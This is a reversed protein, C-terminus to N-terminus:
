FAIRCTRWRRAIRFIKQLPQYIKYRNAESESLAELNTVALNKQVAQILKYELTLQQAAKKGRLRICNDKISEGKNNVMNAIIHLHLHAKDTHKTISYQTDTIGLEELYRKAIEVMKADGPNEGPYFSLISHFCAQKKTPRLSHQREFDQIM